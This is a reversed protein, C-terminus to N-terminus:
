AQVRKGTARARARMSVVGLGICDARNGDAGAGLDLRTRWSRCRWRRRPSCRGSQTGPQSRSGPMQQLPHSSWPAPHMWWPWDNANPPEHKRNRGGIILYRDATVRHLPRDAPHLIPQQAGGTGLTDSALLQKFGIGLHALHLARRLRRLRRGRRCLIFGALRQGCRRHQTAKDAPTQWLCHGGPHSSCRCAAPRACCRSHSGSSRPRFSPSNLAVLVSPTVPLCSNSVLAWTPSTSRVAFAACVAASVAFSAPVANVAAVVSPPRTPCTEVVPLTRRPSFFLPVTSSTRLLAPALRLTLPTASATKLVLLASATDRFCSYEVM